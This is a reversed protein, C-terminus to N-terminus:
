TASEQEGLEVAVAYAVLIMAFPLQELCAMQWPELGRIDESLGMLIFLWSVSFLTLVGGVVAVGITKLYHYRDHRDAIILLVAEFCALLVAIRLLDKGKGGILGISDAIWTGEGQGSTRTFIAAMVVYCLLGSLTALPMLRLYAQLQVPGDAQWSRAEVRMQRLKITVYASTGLATAIPLIFEWMTARVDALAAAFGHDAAGDEAVGISMGLGKWFRPETWGLDGRFFAALVFVLLLSMVGGLVAAVLVENESRQPRQATVDRLIRGHYTTERHRRLDSNRIAYLAFLSQMSAALSQAQSQFEVLTEWAGRPPGAEAPAPRPAPDDAALEALDKALRHYAARAADVKELPAAGEYVDWFETRMPGVVPGQLLDVARLASITHDATQQMVKDPKLRKIFDNYRTVLPLHDDAELDEFPYVEINRLVRNIGRPIGALAYSISRVAREAMGFAPTSAGVVIAMALTLPVSPTDDLSAVVAADAPKLFKFEPRATAIAEADVAGILPPILEPMILCILYLGLFSGVYFLKGRVYEPKTTLASMRVGALELRPGTLTPSSSVIADESDYKRWTDWVLIAAGLAIMTVYQADVMM